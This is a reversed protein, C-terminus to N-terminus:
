EQGGEKDYSFECYFYKNGKFWIFLDGATADYYVKRKAENGDISVTTYEGEIFNGELIIKM